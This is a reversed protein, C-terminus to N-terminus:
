QWKLVFLTRDVENRFWFKANNAYWRSNPTWVGDEPTPGYTEVCWATMDNWHQNYWGPEWGFQERGFEPKVTYYRAGFVRGETLEFQM